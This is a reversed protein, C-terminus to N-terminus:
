QTMIPQNYFFSPFIVQYKQVKNSYKVVNGTTIVWYYVKM